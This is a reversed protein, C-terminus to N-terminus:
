QRTSYASSLKWRATEVPIEREVLRLRLGGLFQAVDSIEGDRDVVEDLSEIARGRVVPDFANADDRAVDERYRM